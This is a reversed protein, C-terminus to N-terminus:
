VATNILVLVSYAATCCTHETDCEDLGATDLLQRVHPLTSIVAPKRLVCLVARVVTQLTHERCVRIM